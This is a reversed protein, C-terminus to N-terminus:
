DGAAEPHPGVLRRVLDALRRHYAPWTATEAARRCAASMARVDAPHRVCWLMREALAERDDAPIVWGTAGDRVLDQGGAMESVLAPVGCALAETVVMGYSDNRSPLVLCDGRRLEDALGQQDLPGAASVRSSAGALLHEADGGPGVLRLRADPEAA